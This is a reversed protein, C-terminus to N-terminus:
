RRLSRLILALRIQVADDFRRPDLGILAAIKDLRYGLTNRHISLDAATSSPCCDHFFFSDLTKILEPEDDLPSLLSAALDIKTQEDSLGVFAVVGLSDLCHVRSHGHFHRGLSLAARADQHSRAIGSLGPYYRGIGVSISTDLTKQLYALLDESARRLAGLNAWAGEAHDLTSRREAWPLLNRSNAAKLVVVTGEGTYACITDNPLHFFSVVTDIVARAQRRAQAEALAPLPSSPSTLIYSSADILIVARPPGFDLGLIRAQQMIAAEDEIREHLLTHIFLDKLAIQDPMQALASAENMVLEVVGHVLRPSIPDGTPEGMIVAGDHGAIRLPVRQHPARLLRGARALARGVLDIKSCAIIIDQDDVVAIPACLLESLRTCIAEAARVFPTTTYTAGRAALVAIPLATRVRPQYSLTTDEQHKARVSKM